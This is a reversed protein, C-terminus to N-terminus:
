LSKTDNFSERAKSWKSLKQNPSFVRLILRKKKKIQQQHQPMHCCFYIPSFSKFHISYGQGIPISEYCISWSAFCFFFFLSFFVEWVCRKTTNSVFSISFCLTIKSHLFFIVFFFLNFIEQYYTQNSTRQKAYKAVGALRVYVHLKINTRKHVCM